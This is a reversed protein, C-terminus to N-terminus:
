GIVPGGPRDLIGLVAAPSLAEKPLFAIAPADSIMDGFDAASYASILIVRREGQGRQDILQQAVDFGTAEGLQVDLLVVDPRLERCAQLAEIATSALGVVTIGDRELLYSAARLFERDDDVILCRVAM